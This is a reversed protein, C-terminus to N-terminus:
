NLPCDKLCVKLNKIIAELEYNTGGVGFHHALLSLQQLLLGLEPPLSEHAHGGSGYNQLLRLAARYVAALRQMAQSQPSLSTCLTICTCCGVTSVIACAEM